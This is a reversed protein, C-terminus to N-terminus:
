GKGGMQQLVLGAVAVANSAQEGFVEREEGLWLMYAGKDDAVHQGGLPGLYQAVWAPKQFVAWCAPMVLDTFQCRGQGPQDCVVHPNFCRYCSNFPTFWGGRQQGHSQAERKTDFYRYRQRNSCAM